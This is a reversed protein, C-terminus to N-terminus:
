KSSHGEYVVSLYIALLERASKEWSFNRTHVKGSCIYKERERPDTIMKELATAIEEPNRPNITYAARNLTEKLAGMESSVVSTECAMAELPPFGFGEYWSPFVFVDAMKYFYPLDSRDVYGPMIINNLRVEESIEKLTSKVKWNRKGVMVLKHPLGKERLLRHAHILAPINKKPELNGVYLIFKDPLDYRKKITNLREFALDPTFISDIGPSVVKIKEKTSPFHRVLDDAVQNSLTIMASAKAATSKMFARYYLTKASGCWAPHDLPVLDHVTVIYPIGGDFLPCINMPCHLIDLREHVTLQPLRFHEWIVRQIHTKLHDTVRLELNQTHPIYKQIVEPRNTFVFYKNQHDYDLLAKIMGISYYEVGSIYRDKINLNIGIRLTNKM